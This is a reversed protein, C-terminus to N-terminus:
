LFDFLLGPNPKKNSRQYYFHTSKLSSFLQSNVMFLLILAIICTHMYTYKQARMHPYTITLTNILFIHRYLIFQNTGQVDKQISM